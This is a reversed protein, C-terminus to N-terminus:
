WGVGGRSMIATVRVAFEGLACRRAEFGRTRTMSPLASLGQVSNWWRGGMVVTKLTWVLVEASSFWPLVRMSAARACLTWWKM